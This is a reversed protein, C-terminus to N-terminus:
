ICVYITLHQGGRVDLHQLRAKLNVLPAQVFGQRAWGHGVGDSFQKHLGQVRALEQFGSPQLIFHFGSTYCKKYNHKDSIPYTHM